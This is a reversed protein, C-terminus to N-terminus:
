FKRTSPYKRFKRGKTAACKLFFSYIPILAILEMENTVVFNTDWVRTSTSTRPQRTKPCTKVDELWNSLRTQPRKVLNTDYGPRCLDRSQDLRQASVAGYGRADMEESPSTGDLHASRPTFFRRASRSLMPASTAQRRTFRPYLLGRDDSTSGGHFSVLRASRGRASWPKRRRAAASIAVM